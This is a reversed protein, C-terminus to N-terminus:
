KAGGNPKKNDAARKESLLGLDRAKLVINAAIPAAVKSGYGAGEVVVSIVLMPREVPAISIYWSDTREYMVPVEYDELEGKSNRRQRVEKKMRGTVPDYVPASKEATGTKGGTRIGAARVSSFAGTATGGAGETVLAMIRRVEAAQQPTMVQSFSEPKIDYEVKPKMLRGEVNGAAAAILAMQFPTMQGAYGQGMGQLALDYASIGKGLVMSSQQVALGSKIRENTANWIESLFSIARTDEPEDFASIGLLKATEKLRDRGLAVALQAFYQNSSAEFAQSLNLGTCGYPPECGGNADTISRSGKFPVFGGETSTFVESQKGARFAAIMTFLKFTSGPVYYERTARNLLPNDRRNGELGVWQELSGSTGISFSPSSHMALLEGTQPNMVVVAGKKGKLQSAVFDQLQRDITLRVDRKDDEARRITTLVQWSEPLPDADKVFLTRELGPSGRETGLLHSMETDLPYTRQLVGDDGVRYYALANSLKGSRDLIWGRLAAASTRRQRLDKYALAQFDENTEDAYLAWYVHFGFTAFALLVFVIHWLRLSRNTVTLTLKKKIEPALGNEFRYLSRYQGLLTIFLLIIVFVIGALYLLSLAAPTRELVQGGLISEPRLKDLQLLLITM